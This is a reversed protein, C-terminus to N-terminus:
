IICVLVVYSYVMCFILVGFKFVVRFCLVLVGYLFFCDFVGNQLVMRFFCVSVGYM